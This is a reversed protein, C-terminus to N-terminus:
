FFLFILTLYRFCESYLFVCRVMCLACYLILDVMTRICSVQKRLHDLDIEGKKGVEIFVIKFGAM